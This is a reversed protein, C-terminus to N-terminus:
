KESMVVMQTRAYVAFKNERKKANQFPANEMKFPANVTPFTLTLGTKWKMMEGGGAFFKSM